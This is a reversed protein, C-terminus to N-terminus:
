SGDRCGERMMENLRRFEDETPGRGARRKWMDGKEEGERVGEWMSTAKRVAM